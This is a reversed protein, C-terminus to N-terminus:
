GRPSAPRIVDLPHRSTNRGGDLLPKRGPTPSVAPILCRAEPGRRRLGTDPRRHAAGGRSCSTSSAADLSVPQIPGRGAALDVRGLDVKSSHPWEGTGGNGWGAVSRVARGPAPGAARVWARQFDGLGARALVTGGGREPANWWRREPGHRAAACSRAAVGGRGNRASREAGCPRDNRGNREPVIAGNRASREAREAGVMGSRREATARAVSGGREGAVGPGRDHPLGVGDLARRRPGGAARSGWVTVCGSGFGAGVVQAPWGGVTAGALRRWSSSVGYGCRLLGTVGPSVACRM